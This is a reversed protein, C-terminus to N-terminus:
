FYLFLKGTYLNWISHTIMSPLLSKTKLTMNCLVIGAVLSIALYLLHFLAFIISSIIIAWFPKVLKSLSFLLIGRFFVEEWIPAFIMVDIIGFLDLGKLLGNKYYVILSHNLLLEFEVSMKLLIYNLLLATLIFIYTLSKKLPALTLFPIVLDRVAHFSFTVILFTLLWVLSFIRNFDNFNASSYSIAYGTFILLVFYLVYNVVVNRKFIM